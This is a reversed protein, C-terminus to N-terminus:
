DIEELEKEFGGTDIGKTATKGAIRKAYAFEVGLVQGDLLKQVQSVSAHLYLEDRGRLAEAIPFIRRETIKLVVGKGSRGKSLWLDAGVFEVDDKKVEEM